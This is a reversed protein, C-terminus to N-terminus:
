KKFTSYSYVWKLCLSFFYNVITFEQMLSGSDSLIGLVHVVVMFGQKQAMGVLNKKFSSTFFGSM